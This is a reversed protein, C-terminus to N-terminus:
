HRGWNTSTWTRGHQRSQRFVPVRGTINFFYLHTSKYVCSVDVLLSIMRAYWTDSFHFNVLIDIGVADLRKALDVFQELSCCGRTPTHWLQIRALNIHNEALIEPLPRVDGFKNRFLGGGAEVLPLFSVDVGRWESLTPVIWLSLYLLIHKMIFWLRTTDTIQTHNHCQTRLVIRACTKDFHITTAFIRTADGGASWFTSCWHDFPTQMVGGPKIWHYSHSEKEPWSPCQHWTVHWNESFPIAGLACVLLCSFSSFCSPALPTKRLNRMVM